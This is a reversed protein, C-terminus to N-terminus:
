TLHRKIWQNIMFRAISDKGSLVLDGTASLDVLEKATYWQAYQIEDDDLQINLSASSAMFGLMLSAPFPWPQSGLYRINDVDLGVEEKMERVVAHEPTEGPEVFGALTSIMNGKYRKNRALLCKPAEGNEAHHEILVIVAPDTRPYTIHGCSSNTCVKVHGTEQYRLKAGCRYCYRYTAKWNFLGLAYALLSAQNPKLISSTGRLNQFEGDGVLNYVEDENQDSLDLAFVPENNERGLFTLQDAYSALKDDLQTLITNVGMDQHVLAKKEKLLLVYGNRANIQAKIWAEDKRLLSARDIPNETYIIRNDM